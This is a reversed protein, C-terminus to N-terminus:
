KLQHEQQYHAIIDEAFRKHFGYPSIPNPLATEFIPLHESDGYIAASSLFILQVRKGIKSHRIAELLHYTGGLNAEYDGIPDIVSLPVSARGATHIICEIDDHKNLIDILALSHIELKYFYSCLSAAKDNLDLGIISIGKSHLHPIIYSAIFGSAGTILVKSFM